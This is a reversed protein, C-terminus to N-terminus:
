FSPFILVLLRYQSEKKHFFSSPNRHASSPPSEGVEHVLTKELEEVDQESWRKRYIQAVKETTPPNLFVQLKQAL